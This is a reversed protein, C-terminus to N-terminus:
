AARREPVVVVLCGEGVRVSATDSLFENSVGRSSGARLVEANLPWRLGSTSVGSVDGNFAFLSVWTGPSGDIVRKDSLESGLPAGNLVAVSTGGLFAMMRLPAFRPSAMTTVTAVLHDMRGSDSGVVVIEDAGASAATALALEFDSSEKDAPYLETKAGREDALALSRPTVSDMDGVVVDPTFGLVGALDAGGDAAVALDPKMSEIRARLDDTISELSRVPGASFVVVTKM